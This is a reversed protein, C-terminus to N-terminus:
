DDKPKPRFKGHLSVMLIARQRSRQDNQWQGFQECERWRGHDIWIHGPRLSMGAGPM